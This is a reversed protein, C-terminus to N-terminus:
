IKPAHPGEGLHVHSVGKPPHRSDDHGRERWATRWEGLGARGGHRNGRAVAVGRNRLVAPRAAQRSADGQGQARVVLYGSCSDGPVNWRRRQWNFYRCDRRCPNAARRLYHCLVVIRPIPLVTVNVDGSRTTMGKCSPIVGLGLLPLAYGYREATDFAEGIFISPWRVTIVM